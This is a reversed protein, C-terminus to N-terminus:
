CAISAMFDMLAIINVYIAKLVLRANVNEMLQRVYGEMKVRDANKVVILAGHAKQVNLSVNLVLIDLLVNVLEMQQLAIVALLIVIVNNHVGM